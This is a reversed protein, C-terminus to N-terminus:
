FFGFEKRAFDALYEASNSLLLVNFGFKGRKLYNVYQKFRAQKMPEEEFLNQDIEVREEKVVDWRSKLRKRDEDRILELIANKDVQLRTCRHNFSRISLVYSSM